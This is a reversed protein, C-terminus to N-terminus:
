NGRFFVQLFIIELKVNLYKSRVINKNSTRVIKKWKVLKVEVKGTMNMTSFYNGNETVKKKGEQSENEHWNVNKKLM